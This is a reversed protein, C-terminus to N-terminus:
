ATLPWSCWTHQIVGSSSQSTFAHPSGFGDKQNLLKYNYLVPQSASHSMLLPYQTSQFIENYVYHMVQWTTIWVKQTGLLFYRWYLLGLNCCLFSDPNPLNKNWSEAERTGGWGSNNRYPHQHAHELRTLKHVQQAHIVGRLIKWFNSRAWEQVWPFIRWSTALLLSCHLSFASIKKLAM